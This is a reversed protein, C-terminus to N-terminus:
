FAWLGGADIEGIRDCGTASGSAMVGIDGTFDGDVTGTSDIEGGRAGRGIQECGKGVVSAEM